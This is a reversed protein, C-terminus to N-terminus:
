ARSKGFSKLSCVGFSLLLLSGSLVTSAEPVPAFLAQAAGPITDPDPVLLAESTSTTPLSPVEALLTSLEAATGADDATVTFSSGYLISWVALQLAAADDNGATLLGSNAAFLNAAVLLGGPVQSPNPTYGAVGVPTIPTPGSYAYTNGVNIDNGIDTCVSYFTSSGPATSTLGIAGVFYADNVTTSGYTFSIDNFDGDGTSVKYDVDAKAQSAFGAALAIAGLVQM